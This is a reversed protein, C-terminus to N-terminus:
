RSGSILGLHIETDREGLFWGLAQTLTTAPTLAPRPGSNGFRPQLADQRSPHGLNRRFLFRFSWRMARARRGSGSSITHSVASARCFKSATAPSRGMSVAVSSSARAPGTVAASVTHLLSPTRAASWQRPQFAPKAVNPLPRGTPHLISRVPVRRDRAARLRRRPQRKGATKCQPPRRDAEAPGPRGSRHGITSM